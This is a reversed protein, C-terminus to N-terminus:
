AIMEILITVELSLIYNLFEVIDCLQDYTKAVKLILMADMVESKRFCVLILLVVEVTSALFLISTASSSSTFEINQM